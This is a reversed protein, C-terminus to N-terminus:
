PWTAVEFSGLFQWCWRSTKRQDVALDVQPKETEPLVQLKPSALWAMTPLKEAGVPKPAPATSAAPKDFGLWRQAARMKLKAKGM